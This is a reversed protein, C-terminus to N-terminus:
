SRPKYRATPLQVSASEHKRNIIKATRHFVVAQQCSDDRDKESDNSVYLLVANRKM